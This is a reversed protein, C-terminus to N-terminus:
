LSFQLEFHSFGHAVLCVKAERKQECSLSRGKRLSWDCRHTLLPFTLYLFIEKKKKKIKDKHPELERNNILDFCIEVSVTVPTGDTQLGPTGESVEILQKQLLPAEDQRTGQQILQVGPTSWLRRGEKLASSSVPHSWPQVPSHEWGAWANAAPASSLPFLNVGRFGTKISLVCSQAVREKEPPATECRALALSLHQRVVLSVWGGESGPSSCWPHHLKGTELSAQCGMAQASSTQLGTPAWPALGWATIGHLWSTAGAKVASCSIPVSGSNKSPCLM